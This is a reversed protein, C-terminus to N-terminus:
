FRRYRRWGLLLAGLGVLAFTGPEPIPSSSFQINDLTGGYSPPVTFLLPGTQGAFASIDASYINYNATSGSVSFDLPQGNFTIQMGQDNGWFSISAAWSPIQGTQGISIAFTSGYIKPDAGILLAYYKRHIPVFSSPPNTDIISISAGSLSRDDYFIYPAVVTWGPFANTADIQNFTLNGDIKASEFNLNLFGQSLAATIMALQLGVLIKINM